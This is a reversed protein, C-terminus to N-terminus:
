GIQSVAIDILLRRPHDGFLLPTVGIQLRNAGHPQVQEADQHGIELRYQRRQASAALREEIAFQLPIGDGGRQEAVLNVRELGQKVADFHRLNFSHDFLTFLGGGGRSFGSEAARQSVIRDLVGDGEVVEGLHIHADGLDDTGIQYFAGILQQLQLQIEAALQAM